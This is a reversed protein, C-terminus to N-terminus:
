GRAAVDAVSVTEEPIATAVKEVLECAHDYKLRSGCWLMETANICHWCHWRKEIQIVFGVHRGEVSIQRCLRKKRRHVMNEREAKQQSGRENPNSFRNAMKGLM